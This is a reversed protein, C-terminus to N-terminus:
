VEHPLWKHLADRVVALTLPKAMYDNMGSALCRERIKDTTNATCAVVPTAVGMERLRRTTEFGDLGPMQCDMLILDFSEEKLRALCDEGSMVSKVDLRSGAKNLMKETVKLNVPNDEVILASYRNEGGSREEVGASIAQAPLTATVRTGRGDGDEIRLSGGLARCIHHSITLGLGIGEHRRSFSSNAQAFAELVREKQSGDIGIGTDTVSIEILSDADSKRWSLQLLVVGDDTFKIANDVLHRVVQRLLSPDFRFAQQNFANDYGSIFSLNKELARLRFTQLMTDLVEPVKQESFSVPLKNKEMDVVVLVDELLQTLHTLSRDATKKYDDFEESSNNLEMLQLMGIAGNLPTRLEHSMMALFESKAKSALQTKQQEQMLQETYRQQDQEARQLSEALRNANVQLHGIEAGDDVTLRRSTSGAALGAIFSALKELPTLISLSATRSILAALVVVFLGMALSQQMITIARERTYADSMTLCITGLTREVMRTDGYESFEDLEPVMRVISKELVSVTGQGEDGPTGERIVTVGASNKIEVSVIARQELAAQVLPRLLDYNGSILPYESSASIHELVIHAISESEHQLDTWRSVMHYATLILVAMLAPVAGVLLIRQRVSLRRLPNM